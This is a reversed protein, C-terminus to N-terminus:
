LKQDPKILDSKANNAKKLEETSVGYKKAIRDYSEGSQVTHEKTSSASEKRGKRKGNTEKDAGKKATATAQPTNAKNKKSKSTQAPEEAKAAKKKISPEAKKTAPEAKKSDAKKTQETKKTNAAEAKKTEEAKRNANASKRSQDPETAQTTRTAATSTTGSIKLVQGTRVSNRRLNNWEKLQEPSIGYKASISAISEGPEVKHTKANANSPGLTPAAEAVTKKAPTTKEKNANAAAAQKRTPAEAMDRYVENEDATPTEAIFTDTVESEGITKGPEADIRRAYKESDYNLIDEESMIYAHVQQSPLILNYSKSTNGPIVDARFQPNLMRLEEVPINLVKAIQNFHVRKNVHVTDTVLPRKPIVPSINHNKYYNMVYNAAIFAPVYGRTEAPLYNYIAWFDLKSPDGGARRLAKNVNGPGCNYAAIALSWDGYTKYLDNLFKAARQSSVYPDRREDVLSNVEMNLGKAAILMFQWLGTAGAKSVANPELASEIIPLYKLELPLGQEELAQEFIPMYYNSLGLLSAVMPRGKKTYREIHSKVVQNFPMEIITPLESLRRRYTDDSTAVDEKTMYRDDTAMYNQMYWGELMKRSQAEYNAEPYVINNDTISEKIDLVNKKKDANAPLACAMSLCIATCSTFFTLKNM